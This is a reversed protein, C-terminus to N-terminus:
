RVRGAARRPHSQIPHIARCNTRTRTWRSLAIADFYHLQDRWPAAFGATMRLCSSGRVKRPRLRRPAGGVPLPARGKGESFILPEEHRLIVPRPILHRRAAYAERLSRGVFGLRHNRHSQGTRRKTRSPVRIKSPSCSFSSSQSRCAPVVKLGSLDRELTIAGCSAQPSVDFM